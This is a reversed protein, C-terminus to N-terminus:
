IYSIKSKYVLVIHQFLVKEHLYPIFSDNGYEPWSKSM